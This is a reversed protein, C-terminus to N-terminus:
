NSPAPEVPKPPVVVFKRKARLFTVLDNIEDSTLQEGFPPMGKGGDHIQHTMEEVTKRKRVLQLDPGRGGGIGAKGHCFECGKTAFLEAGHARPDVGGLVASPPFSAFVLATLFVASGFIM